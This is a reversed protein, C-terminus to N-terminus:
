RRRPVPVADSERWAALWERTVDSKWDVMTCLTCRQPVGPSVCRALFRVLPCADVTRGRPHRLAM